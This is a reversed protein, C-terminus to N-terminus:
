MGRTPGFAEVSNKGLENQGYYRYWIRQLAILDAAFCKYLHKEYLTSPLVVLMVQVTFDNFVSAQSHGDHSPPFVFSAIM